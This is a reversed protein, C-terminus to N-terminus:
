VMKWEGTYVDGEPYYYTGKGHYEDNKWEGNYVNGKAERYVGVGHRFGEVYEGDYSSGDDAWVFKGRGHRKDNM